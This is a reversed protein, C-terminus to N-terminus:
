HIWVVETKSQTHRRHFQHIEKDIMILWAQCVVSLGLSQALSQQMPLNDGILFAPRLPLSTPTCETMTGADRTVLAPPQRSERRM